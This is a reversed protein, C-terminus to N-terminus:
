LPCRDHTLVMRSLEQLLGNLDTVTEVNVGDVFKGRSNRLHAVAAAPEEHQTDAAAGAICTM